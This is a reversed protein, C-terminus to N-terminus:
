KPYFIRGMVDGTFYHGKCNKMSDQRTTSFFTIRFHLHHLLAPENFVSCHQWSKELYELRNLLVIRAPPSPIVYKKYKKRETRYKLRKKVFIVRYKNVSDTSFRALIRHKILPLLLVNYKSFTRSGDPGKNFFRDHVRCSPQLDRRCDTWM